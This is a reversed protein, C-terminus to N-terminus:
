LGTLDRAAKTMGRVGSAASTVVGAGTGYALHASLDKWLTKEDYETIPKYVGLQPLVAYSTGWAAIGSLIGAKIGGLRFRQLIAALIGWGIGTSWHVVNNTLAAASDPLEINAKTALAKGVKAPAPADDFGNVESRFEWDIFSETGGDKRYRLYWLADMSLTGAVGAFVGTRVVGRFPRRM